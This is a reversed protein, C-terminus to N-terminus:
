PQRASGLRDTRAMGRGLHGAEAEHREAVLGAVRGTTVLGVAGSDNPPSGPKM